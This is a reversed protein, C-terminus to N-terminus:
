LMKELDSVSIIPVNLEEAKKEKSSPSGDSKGHEQVLYHTTSGVSSKVNGGENEILGTWHDKGLSFSGTLCFNKGDLKGSKPLELEFRELLQDVFDEERFFDYIAQATTDGIGSIGLLEDVEANRIKDFDKYHAVLAKGATKGAGSIGLAAFFKWAEVKIKKGQAKTVAARLKDNDDQPKVFWLTAMALTAQRESFANGATLDAETLDYLDSLKHVKGIKLVKEMASAGLGKGGLNTLFFLWSHVQKAGCKKNTCLLDRNGSDSTHLKLDTDCVPCKKPEGIDTVKGSVVGCVNPIIKGAKKVNVKTGTGVGMNQAWGFNNVTARLVDTDALNIAQKFVATPVVRGTRSANWELHDIEAVAVEEAFKWALAGRPSNVPDDGTHGLEYQQNLDDVKLVVGDVYYMLKPAYEELMELHAFQHPRVHVFYGNGFNDQLNLGEPSNVWKAREVETKYYDEWADFGTISYWAIRLKSGRTEKEDDRGMCGATYNRPNKYPELGDQDRQENIKRFDDIRCEIEGNLSLTLPLRLKFPVGLINPAHRTVDTGNIGDRPRLGASVLQGKEYNVRIAVGDHKYSQAFRVKDPTVGLRDACSKMWDLYIQKKKDGDAKNISTMPPNHVVFGSSPKTATSPSTGQFATSQPHLKQLERYLADYEPDTIEVGDFDEVYGDEEYKTAAHVVLKELAAVDPFSRNGVAIM